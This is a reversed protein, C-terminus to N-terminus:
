NVAAIIADITKQHTIEWSFEKAREAAKRSLQDCREPNEILTSIVETMEEAKNPDFFMAADGLVEPMAASNSSAIPAGCAMAEVLPNGFTEVTSPFVFIRCGRYLDRLDATEVHGLFEVHEDLDLERILRKLDEYYDQDVPRGAIKLRIDPYVSRLRALAKVLIVFNKQVYIDSVSLLYSERAQGNAAGVFQGDVGHPVVVIRRESMRKSFSGEIGSRAYNSVAIAKRCTLLSLLTAMYLLGWYALKIPRREVFGVSVANRVLVIHNRAFFPGYNAPSFTADVRLRNALQPIDFQERFLVRWFGRTYHQFHYRVNAVDTPLVDRQDEHLCVHVDLNEQAAMKPLMNRLYTVGGGSRAHLANILIRFRKHEVIERMNGVLGTIHNPWTFQNEARARGLSILRARLDADKDIQEIKRALDAPDGLKFYLAADGCIERHVPIDSVILPIGAQMAEVMPFGFTEAMSPFVFADYHTLADSLEDHEIRGMEFSERYQPAMLTDFENQATDWAEFDHAEMTIRTKVSTGRGNLLRTAEALTVPDKHPYYVSVYLLRIHGDECWDRRKAPQKFRPNVGLYNVTAIERLSEDYAVASELAVQSPFIVLRSCRASILMLNRRLFASLRERWSLKPLVKERYVPNLYIEGQM